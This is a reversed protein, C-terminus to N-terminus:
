ELPNGDLAELRSDERSDSEHNAQAALAKLESIVFEEAEAKSKAPIDLAAVEGELDIEVRYLNKNGTKLQVAEVIGLAQGTNASFGVVGVILIVALGEFVKRM